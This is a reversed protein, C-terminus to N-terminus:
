KSGKSILKEEVLAKMVSDVLTQSAEKLPQRVPSAYLGRIGLAQKMLSLDKGDRLFGRIKDLVTQATQAAVFDSATYSDLVNTVVEPFINANGSVCAVSGNELADLLLADSGCIVQFNEIKLSKYGIMKQLDGSSDKIGVVNHSHQCIELITDNDLDNTTCQPITYLYVPLNPVADAVRIFHTALADNALHYYYPTVVSIADVQLESAARALEITTRTTIAGVHAMVPVRHNVIEVTSCILDLREASSLLPGEGTTGAPMIGDVKKEILWELHEALARTHIDGHKTFPTFIPVIVGHAQFDNIPGM